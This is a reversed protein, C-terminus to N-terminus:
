KVIGYNWSLVAGTISRFVLIYTNFNLTEVFDNSTNHRPNLDSERNQTLTIAPLGLSWFSELTSPFKKMTAEEPANPVIETEKFEVQGYLRDVSQSIMNSLQKDSAKYYLKFNNFKKELDSLKTDHALMTLNLFGVIKQTGITSMLKKAYEQSGLSKAEEADFFVIKITKPLDLEVLIEIMSLELAVGSANNDAGPMETESKTKTPFYTDYNAGIIMVEDPVILGKKEWIFNVGPGNNELTFEEKSFSAGNRANEKLKLELYERAKLHGPSGVLRSPRTVKVFERLNEEIKNRSLKEALTKVAYGTKVNREFKQVVIAAEAKSGILLLVFLLSYLGVSFNFVWNKVKVRKQNLKM